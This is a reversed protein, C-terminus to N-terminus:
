HFVRSYILVLTQNYSFRSNNYITSASYNLRSNELITKTGLGGYIHLREWKTFKLNYSYNLRVLRKSEEGILTLFMDGSYMENKATELKLVKIPQENRRAGIFLLSPLGWNFNFKSTNNNSLPYIDKQAVGFVGIKYTWVSDQQANIVFALVSM